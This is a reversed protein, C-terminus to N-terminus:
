CRFTGQMIQLNYEDNSYQSSTLNANSWLGFRGAAHIRATCTCNYTLIWMKLAKFSVKIICRLFSSQIFSPLTIRSRVCSHILTTNIAIVDHTCRTEFQYKMIRHNSLIKHWVPTTLTISPSQHFGHSLIIFWIVNEPWWSRGRPMLLLYTTHMAVLVHIIDFLIQNTVATIYEVLHKSTAM